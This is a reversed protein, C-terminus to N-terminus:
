VRTVIMSVNASFPRSDKGSRDSFVGVGKGRVAFDLDDRTDDTELLDLEVRVLVDARALQIQRLLLHVRRGVPQRNRRRTM